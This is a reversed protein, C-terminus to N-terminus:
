YKLECPIRDFGRLSAESSQVECPCLITLSTSGRSKSGSFWASRWRHSFCFATLYADALRLDTPSIIERSDLSIQFPKFEGFNEGYAMAKMGENKVDSM